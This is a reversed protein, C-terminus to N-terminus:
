SVRSGPPVDQDFGALLPSGDELSAALLLGESTEGMLKATKM